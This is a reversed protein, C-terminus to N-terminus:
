DVNKESEMKEWIEDDKIPTLSNYSFGEIGEDFGCIATYPCYDCKALGRRLSPKISIEGSLINEATDKAKQRVYERLFNIRKTSAVSASKAFSGDKKTSVPIVDSETEFSRDLNKIIDLDTNVIGSPKLKNLVANENKAEDRTLFPTDIHYYFFAAPLIEKGSKALQEMVADLYIVLQLARGYYPMDIEWKTNGTKYDIIKVLTKGDTDCTDVRDIKGRLYMKAGNKLDINLAELNDKEGFIREFDFPKFNGAALQKALVMMTLKTM